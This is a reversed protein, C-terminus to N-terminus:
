VLLLGAITLIFYVTINMAGPYDKAIRQGFMLGTLTLAGTLLGYRALSSGTDPFLLLQIGGALMLLTALIELVIVGNLLGPIYPQLFTKQFHARYYNVSGKLNALKEFASYAFTISLYLLILLLVSQETSFWM